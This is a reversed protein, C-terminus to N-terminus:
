NMVQPLSQFAEFFHKLIFIWIYQQEALWYSLTNTRVPYGLLLQMIFM